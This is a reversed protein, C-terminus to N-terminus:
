QSQMWHEAHAHTQTCARVERSNCSNWGGGAHSNGESVERGCCCSWCLLKRWSKTQIMSLLCLSLTLCFSLSLSIFLFGAHGIPLKLLLCDSKESAIVILIRGGLNNTQPPCPPSRTLLLFNLATILLGLHSSSSPLCPVPNTTVTLQYQTGWCTGCSQPTPM